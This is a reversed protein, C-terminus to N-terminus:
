PLTHQCAIRSKVGAVRRSIAKPKPTVVTCSSAFKDATIEISIHLILAIIGIPDTHSSAKRDWNKVIGVILSFDAASANFTSDVM